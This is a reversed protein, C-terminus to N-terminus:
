HAGDAEGGEHANTPTYPMGVILAVLEPNDRLLEVLGFALIAIVNEPHPGDFAANELLGHLAEHVLTVVKRSEAQDKRIRIRAKTWAIDGHLSRTKGESDTDRLKKVQKVTYDVPGIKLKTPLTLRALNDAGM